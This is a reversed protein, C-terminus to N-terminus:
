RIGLEDLRRYLTKRSIGLLRAAETRNNGARRLADLVDERSFVPRRQIHGPLPAPAEQAPAARTDPALHRLVQDLELIPTDYLQILGDLLNRLERVNGPWDYGLLFRRTEQSCVPVPRGLQRCISGLFYDVLPLIDERRERLPPLTIRIAGLRYFLDERFTRLRIREQLNTNTAAIIRVDVTTLTTAGMKLFSQTELVRLLVAQLELPMDGIEDLFLTGQDALEFKGINGGRKAGTFAGEEYGFLESSILEKSFAACNIAVFPGDRRRSANHIAQAVIDKGVGSEGLLLINSNSVAASRAYDLADLYAPDSGVIDQFHYQAMNGAYRSLLKNIRQVTNIALVVGHIHFKDAQYLYTSVSVKRAKGGCTITIMRDLVSRGRGIIDWLDRNAPLPDFIEELDLYFHDREPLGFVKRVGPSIILVRNRGLSQDLRISGNGDMINDYEGLTFFWFFQLEIERAVANILLGLCPQAAGAPVVVAAGGRLRATQANGSSVIPSFYLAADQLQLAYHEAGVTSFVTNHELGLAVANSGMSSESFSTGIRIDHATCWDWFDVSGYWRVLYGEQDFLLVGTPQGGAQATMAEMTSKLAANSYVYLERSRQRVQHVQEKTLRIPSLQRPLGRRLCRARSEALARQRREEPIHEQRAKWGDNSM